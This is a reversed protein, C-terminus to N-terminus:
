RHPTSSLLHLRLPRPARSPSVGRGLRRHAHTPSVLELIQPSCALPHEDRIHHILHPLKLSVPYALQVALPSREPVLNAGHASPPPDRRWALKRWGVMEEKAGVVRLGPGRLAPYHRSEPLCRPGTRCTPPNGEARPSRSAQPLPPPPTTTPGAAPPGSWSPLGCASRLYAETSIRRAENHPM